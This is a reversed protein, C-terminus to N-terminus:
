VKVKISSILSNVIDFDRYVWPETKDKLPIRITEVEKLTDNDFISKCINALDAVTLTGDYEPFTLTWSRLDNRDLIAKFSYKDMALKLEYSRTKVENLTVGM